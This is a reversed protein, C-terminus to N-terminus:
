HQWFDNYQTNAVRRRKGRGEGMSEVDKFGDDVVSVQPEVTDDREFSESENHALLNGLEDASYGHPVTLKGSAIHQLVTDVAVDSPNLEADAAHAFPPEAEEDAQPIVVRYQVTKIREWTKVDNKQVDRLAHLTERSTLNEFSLNFM